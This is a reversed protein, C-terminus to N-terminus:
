RQFSTHPAGAILAFAGYQSFAVDTAATVPALSIPGKTADVTSAVYLERNWWQEVCHFDEAWRAFFVGCGREPNAVHDATRVPQSPQLHLSSRTWGTLPNPDSVVMPQRRTFSCLVKGTVSAVM